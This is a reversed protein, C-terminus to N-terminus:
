ENDDSRESDSEEATGDDADVIELLIKLIRQDQIIYAYDLATMSDWNRLRWNIGPQQCLWTTLEYDGHWVSMLLATCRSTRQQANLDAGLEVLVKVLNIARLGTHKKVAVHICTDGDNNEVALISYYPETMNDRINYLLEQSGDNAADHFITNGTIPNIGSIQPIEDVSM